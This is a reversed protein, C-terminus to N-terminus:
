QFLRPVVTGIVGLAAGTRQLTNQTAPPMGTLLGLAKGALYGAAYGKLGGGAAGLMSGLLGTQHPTIFGPQATADPLQGAAYLSGMTTATVQPGAGVEWLLQGLKNVNVDLATPDPNEQPTGFTALAQKVWRDHSAKAMAGLEPTATDLSAPSGPPPALDSGDLLGRGRSVTSYLWAAGPSAGALGGLTALAGRLRRRRTWHEPLLKEGLYGLGYGLGAGVLGGSLAAALPSPANPYGGPYEGPFFNLLEGSRRLLPSYAVKVWGQGLEDFGLPDLRAHDQGVAAALALKVLAEDQRDISPRYYAAAKEQEPHWYYGVDGGTFVLSVARRLDAAPAATKEVWRDVLEPVAAWDHM